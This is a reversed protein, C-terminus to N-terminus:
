KKKELRINNWSYSMPSDKEYIDKAKKPSFDTYHRALVSKPLWKASFKFDPGCFTM